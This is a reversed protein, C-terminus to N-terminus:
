LSCRAREKRRIKRVDFHALYNQINIEMNNAHNEKANTTMMGLDGSMM